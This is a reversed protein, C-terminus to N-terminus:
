IDRYSITKLRALDIVLPMTLPPGQFDLTKQARFHCRAEFCNLILEMYFYQYMPLKIYM